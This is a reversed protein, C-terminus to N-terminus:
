YTTKMTFIVDASNQRLGSSRTEIRSRMLGDNPFGTVLDVAVFGDSQIEIDRAGDSGSVRGDVRALLSLRRDVMTLGLATVGGTWKLQRPDVASLDFGLSRSAIELFDVAYVPDGVKTIQRSYPYFAARMTRLMEKYDDSDKAPEPRRTDKAFPFSVTLDRLEGSKSSLALAQMLPLRPAATGRQDRYEVLRLDIITNQAAQRTTIKMTADFSTEKVESGREIRSVTGMKFTADAVEGYELTLPTTIPRVEGTYGGNGTALRALGPALRSAAPDGATECASLLVALVIAAM